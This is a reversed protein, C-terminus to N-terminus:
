ARAIRIVHKVAAHRAPFPHTAAPLRPKPLPLPLPATNSAWPTTPRPAAPTLLLVSARYGIPTKSPIHHSFGPGAELSRLTRSPTAHVHAHTDPSPVTHPGSPALARPRSPRNCCRGRRRGRERYRARQRAASLRVRGHRATPAARRRARRGAPFPSRATAACRRRDLLEVTHRTRPRTSTVSM